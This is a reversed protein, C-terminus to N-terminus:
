SNEDRLVAEFGARGLNGKSAGDFNLKVWDKPLANRKILNRDVQKKSPVILGIERLSWKTEMSRDWDNYKHKKRM